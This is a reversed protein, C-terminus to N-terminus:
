MWPWGLYCLLIGEEKSIFLQLSLVAGNLQNTDRHPHVSNDVEMLLKEEQMTTAATKWAWKVGALPALGKQLNSLNAPDPTWAVSGRHPPHQSATYYIGPSQPAKPM